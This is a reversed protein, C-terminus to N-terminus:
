VHARGIQAEKMRIRSSEATWFLTGSLRSFLKQVLIFSASPAYAPCRQTHMRAGVALRREGRHEVGTHLAHVFITIQQHRVKGPARIDLGQDGIDCAGAVSRPYLGSRKGVDIPGALPLAADAGM